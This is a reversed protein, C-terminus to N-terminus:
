GMFFFERNLFPNSKREEGITTKMGHGSYVTVDDPLAMMKETLSKYLDEGNSGPLDYRGISGKFLVDGSVIVKENPFYFCISGVSHGPTFLIKYSTDGFAFEEGEGLFVRNEPQEEINFGFMAGYSSARKLNDLELEHMELPLDFTKAVLLNGPIHDIHCHTNLLRVPKLDNNKIYDLFQEQEYANHCGPDIILADKADNSIVYTNEQFPNFTFKKITLM